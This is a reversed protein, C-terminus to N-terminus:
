EAFAKYWNGFHKDLKRSNYGDGQVQDPTWTRSEQRRLFSSAVSMIKPM